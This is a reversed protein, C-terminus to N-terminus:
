LSYSMPEVIVDIAPGANLRGKVPVKPVIEPEYPDEDKINLRKKLDTQIKKLELVETDEFLHTTTRRNKYENPYSICSKEALRVIKMMLRRKTLFALECTALLTITWMTYTVVVVVHANYVVNKNSTHWQTLPSLRRKPYRKINNEKRVFGITMPYSTRFLCISPTYATDILSSHYYTCQDEKNCEVTIVKDLGDKIFKKIEYTNPPVHISHQTMRTFKSDETYRQIWNGYLTNYFYLITENDTNEVFLNHNKDPLDSLMTPIGKIVNCFTKNEPCYISFEVKYLTTQHWFYCILVKDTEKVYCDELTANPVDFNADLNLFESAYEPYFKEIENALHPLDLKTHAYGNDLKLLVHLDTKDTFTLINDLRCVNMWSTSYNGIYELREQFNDYENEAWVYVYCDPDILYRYVVTDQNSYPNSIVYSARTSTTLSEMEEYPPPPVSTPTITTSTASRYSPLLGMSSSSVVSLSTQRTRNSGPRCGMSRLFLMVSSRRQHRSLWMMIDYDMPGNFSFGSPLRAFGVKPKTLKMIIIACFVAISILLTIGLFFTAHDEPVEPPFNLYVPTSYVNPLPELKRTANNMFETDCFPVKNTDNLLKVFHCCALRSLAGSRQCLHM